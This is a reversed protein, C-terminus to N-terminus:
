IMKTPRKTRFPSNKLKSSITLRYFSPVTSSKQKIEQEFIQFDWKKPNWFKKKRNKNKRDALFSSM